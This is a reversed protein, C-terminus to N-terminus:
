QFWSANVESIYVQNGGSLLSGSDGYITQPAASGEYIVTGKPVVVTTVYEATNGWEPNLALDIQSQLGDAVNDM